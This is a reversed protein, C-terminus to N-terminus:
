QKLSEQLPRNSKAADNVDITQGAELRRKIMRIDRGANIGVAGEVRGCRRYFLIHGNASTTPQEISVAGESITGVIQINQDYQDSWFWPYPDIASTQGLMARGAAIGQRQANDWSERRTRRGFGDHFSAVDGAAFIGAVSTQLDDAVAIGNDLALGAAAALETAPVIGVGIIVASIDLAQGDSLQAREVRTHGELAMVTTNLRVDVGHGRHLDFLLASIEPPAARACLRGAAEIVTVAVGLKRAAAAVELGIWGGGVILVNAPPILARRLALADTVSRLYFVNDLAAGPAGLKRPCGGTALLLRDYALASGDSFSILSRDPTLSAVTTNLRLEVGCDVYFQAPFVYAAEIESQGLLLQKSLPPREYPPHAESGVLTLHGDFGEQRLTKAAWAGSQGGGVIVFSEKSGM